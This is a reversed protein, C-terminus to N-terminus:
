IPRTEHLLERKPCLQCNYFKETSAFELGSASKLPKMMFNDTLQVGTQKYAEGM